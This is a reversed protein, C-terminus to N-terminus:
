ATDETSSIFYNEKVWFTNSNYHITQHKHLLMQYRSSMHSLILSFQFYQSIQQQTASIFIYKMFVFYLNVNFVYPVKTKKKKMTCEWIDVAVNYIFDYNM